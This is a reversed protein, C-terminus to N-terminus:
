IVRDTIKLNLVVIHLALLPFNVSDIAAISRFAAGQMGGSVGYRRQQGRMQAQINANFANFELTNLNRASPGLKEVIHAYMTRLGKLKSKKVTTITAGLLTKTEQSVELLASTLAAHGMRRRQMVADLDQFESSYKLHQEVCIVCASIEALAGALAFSLEWSGDEHLVTEECRPLFLPFLKGCSTSPLESDTLPYRNTGTLMTLM